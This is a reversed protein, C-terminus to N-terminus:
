GCTASTTRRGARTSGSSCDLLQSSNGSPKVCTISASQNIGLARATMRNVEVAVHRLGDKVGADQAIPSDMQGPSTWAWCGSRRATRSGSRACARSTSRWRSSRASSPPLSSRRACRRSPTTRARWSSTLNCFQWPRLIIEGCPNTGFEALQRRRPGCRRPWRATSSAPSAAGPISWRRSSTSSSSSISGRPPWVASNNANWRQSNEREFDGDKCTLMETDDYDFLSIMATRRVGGSVAASGGRVDHRPRRDPAPVLGPALPDGRMFDLMRQLPEPGSARGGKIRLPAGAQRILSIDFRVDGGDFWRELGFRLADAWGEASDEVVWLDARAGTQRKIRPFEEVYKSEVSYGVGCGSMSIILAECFSDISEVPQYSCNYITINNRRAAPGAMALLRMSPMVRMELIGRRVREYTEAPLRDGALEHLFDVARGVTEIWTERRGLDYNFRSYKDFFQFRQLPTPFYPDSAAFAERVEDPIPREERHAAHEFRYLIYRKAAEFEGAAQLVMEVIDQVGEVTPPEGNAKAAVINVVRHALEQGVHGPRARVGRLLPDPCGRDARRRVARRAWRAQRHEVPPVVAVEMAAHGNGNTHGNGNGNQARDDPEPPRKLLKSNAVTVPVNRADRPM